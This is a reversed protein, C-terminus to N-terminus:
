PKGENTIAAKCDMCGSWHYSDQMANEEAVQQCLKACRKREAEVAAALKKAWEESCMATAEAVCRGAYEHMQADAIKACREREAAVAQSLRPELPGHLRINAACDNAGYAQTHLGDRMLGEAIRECLQACSEREAAVDGLLVAKHPARRPWVAASEIAEAEAEKKEPCLRAIGDRDVVYWRPTM